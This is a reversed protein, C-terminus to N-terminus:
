ARIPVGSVANVQLQANADITTTNGTGLAQANQIQLVGGVVTFPESFSPNAVTLVITGNGVAKLGKNATGSILPSNITLTTFAATSFDQQGTDAGGGLTISALKITETSGAPANVTIFGTQGNVVPSEGLQIAHCDISYGNGSITISNFVQVPNTLDNHTTVSTVGAPFVLDDTGQGLPATHVGNSLWNNKDAWSGNGDQGTWTFVAPALRNELPELRLHTRRRLKRIPKVAPHLLSRLWRSWSFFAM